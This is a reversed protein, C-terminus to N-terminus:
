INLEAIEERENFPELFPNTVRETGITSTSGHGPLVETEGPLAMLKEMISVILADYDGGFLDTRGIAGAFLTDGTFLAWEPRLYWCIGGPTHGPTAIAQWERGGAKVSQGDSVPTITFSTDPVPFGFKKVRDFYELVSLDEPSMYVPIGYRRQLGAVGYVHDMHSHTLLIADPRLGNEQLWRELAQMEEPALQGPDIIACTGDDGPVAWCNEELPNVIFRQVTM